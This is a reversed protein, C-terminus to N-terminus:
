WFLLQKLYFIVSTLNKIKNFNTWKVSKALNVRFKLLSLRPAAPGCGDTFRIYDVKAGRHRASFSAFFVLFIHIPGGRSSGTMIGMSHCGRAIRFDRSTFGRSYSFLWNSNNIKRSSTSRSQSSNSWSIHTCYCNLELCFCNSKKGSWKCLQLKIRKAPLHRHIKRAASNERFSVMIPSFDIQLSSLLWENNKARQSQKAPYFRLRLVM